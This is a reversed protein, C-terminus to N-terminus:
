ENILLRPYKQRETQTITYGKEIIQKELLEELYQIDLVYVKENIDVNAIVKNAYGKSFYVRINKNKM